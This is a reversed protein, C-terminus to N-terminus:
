PNPRETTGWLDQMNCEYKRLVKRNYKVSQELEEVKDEVWLVRNEVQGVRNALSEFSTNLM